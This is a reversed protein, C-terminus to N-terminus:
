NFLGKIMKGAGEFGASLISQGKREQEETPAAEAQTGRDVRGKNRPFRPQPMTTMQVDATRLERFDIVFEASNGDSLTRPATVGIVQMNEYVSMGTRVTVSVPKRVLDSLEAFVDAVRTVESTHALGMATVGDGIDIQTLVGRIGRDRSGTWPVDGLPSDTVVCALGLKKLDPMKHDSISAGGEVPHDTLTASASHSERTVADFALRYLAGSRTVEGSARDRHFEELYYTLEVM